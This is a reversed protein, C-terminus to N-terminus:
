DAQVLIRGNEVKTPYTDIGAVAPPSKVEGTRVDFRAGHRPCIVEGQRVWGSSIPAYDHSCEDAVAYFGDDSNIVVIRVNNVKVAKMKGKPIEDASGVDVFDAM